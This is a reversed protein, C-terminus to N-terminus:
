SVWREFWALGRGRRKEWEALLAGEHQAWVERLKAGGDFFRSRRLDGGPTGREDAGFLLFQIITEDLPTVPKQLRTRRTRNTPM